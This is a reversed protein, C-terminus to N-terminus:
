LHCKPPKWTPAIILSAEIFIRTRMKQQVNTHFETPHYQCAKSKLLCQWVIKQTDLKYEEQLTLLAKTERCRMSVTSMRMRKLKLCEQPHITTRMTTKFQMEWTRQTAIPWRTLSVLQIDRSVLSISSRKMDKNDIQINEKTFHRNWAKQKNKKWQITRWNTIQLLEIYMRIHTGKESIHIAFTKEGM